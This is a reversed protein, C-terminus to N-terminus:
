GREGKMTLTATNKNRNTYVMISVGPGSDVNLRRITSVLVLTEADKNAPVYKAHKAITVKGRKGVCLLGWDKPVEDVAAVLESPVMYYRFDGVGNLPNERTYKHRDAIFDARHAKCEIMFSGNMHWGLVDPTERLNTAIETVVVPCAGRTDEENYRFMNPSRALWRRGVDVLEAHTM